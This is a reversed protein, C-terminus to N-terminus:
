HIKWYKAFIDLAVNPRQQAGYMGLTSYVHSLILTERGQWFSTVRSLFAIPRPDPAQFM